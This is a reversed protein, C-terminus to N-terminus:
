KAEARVHMRKLQGFSILRNGEEDWLRFTLSKLSSWVRITPAAQLEPIKKQCKPLNYNPIRPNLHHVHHFGINGTFFRLIPPLKYFSGGELSASDFDWDDSRKWYVGDFQHQVYFLWVGAALGIFLIPFQLLLYAKIGLLWILLGALVLIGLNTFYVSLRQSLTAKRLVFRHSILLIFLPGLGLMVFPNRYLRYQLREKPSSQNFEEVTMMWVDGWGRKDLNGSTAHHRAHNAKWYHYPTFTLIGTIFGVIDNASSSGFFSGHGCDHFIIFIRVMFGAALIIAPIALWYSYHMAWYALGWCAAYPILSDAVQWISRGTSSHQYVSVKDKIAHHARASDTAERSRPM